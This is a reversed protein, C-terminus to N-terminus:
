ACSPTLSRRLSHGKTAPMFIKTPVGLSEAFGPKRCRLALMVNLWADVVSLVTLEPPLEQETMHPRSRGVDQSLDTDCVDCGGASM